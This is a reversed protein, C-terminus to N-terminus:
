QNTGKYQSSESLFLDILGVDKANTVMVVMINKKNTKKTEM